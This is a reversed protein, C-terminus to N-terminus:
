KGKNYKKMFEKRFERFKGKKISARSQRMIEQIFYLNHYSLHHKANSENLKFLHFLYARSYNRCVYCDCNKDLPSFDTRYHQKKFNLQGASTYINGHRGMRTPFCSDFIDIGHEIAELMEPISGVGMLYRPKKEPLMSECYDVTALMKDHPEGLGFGGIAYGDFDHELLGSISKKRLDKHIGGQCIGFLQQKDNNHTNVCRDAWRTTREIAKAIEPTKCPFLPMQDLCMAVDSGIANQVEISREPTLMIKSSDFPNRFYIGKDSITLFMHESFVQFGGSDTFISKKWNMFNHIGDAKRIIDLGPKMSLIFGNMIICQAGHELLERQDIFKMTAKTAVPMFFPTEVNGHATRLIGARAAADKHKIKFM